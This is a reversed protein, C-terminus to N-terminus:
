STLGETTNMNIGRMVEDDDRRVEDTKEEAESSWVVRDQGDKIRLMEGM